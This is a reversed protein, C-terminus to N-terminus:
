YQSYSDEYKENKWGKDQGPSSFTRTKERTFKTNRGRHRGSIGLHSQKERWNLGPPAGGAKTELLDIIRGESEESCCIMKSTLWCCIDTKYSFIEFYDSTWGTMAICPDRCEGTPRSGQSADNSTVEGGWRPHRLEVLVPDWKKFVINQKISSWEM